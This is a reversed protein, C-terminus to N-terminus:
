AAARWRLAAYADDLARITDAQTNATLARNRARMFEAPAQLGQSAVDLAWGLHKRAHRIGNSGHHELMDDYLRLVIAHQEDLAPEAEPRGSVLSRALSGPFWPRGQAGRGVMVADAGSATLAAKATELSDIDGNVVVPIRVAEKLHAREYTM